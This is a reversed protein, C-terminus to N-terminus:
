GRKRGSARRSIRIEDNFKKAKMKTLGDQAQLKKLAELPTMKVPPGDGYDLDHVARRIVESKSVGWKAALEQVRAATEPKLSYTAKCTTTIAM